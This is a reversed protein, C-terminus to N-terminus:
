KTVGTIIKNIPIDYFEEYNNRIIEYLSYRQMVRNLLNKIGRKNSIYQLDNDIIMTKMGNCIQEETANPNTLILEYYAKKILGVINLEEFKNFDITKINQKFMKSKFKGILTERKNKLANKHINNIIQDISNNDLYSFNEVLTEWDLKQNKYKYTCNNNIFNEIFYTNNCIYSEFLLNNEGYIENIVVDVGRFFRVGQLYHREPENSIKTALYDTLGENVYNLCRDYTTNNVHSLGNLVRKEKIFSSSLNHLIEHIITHPTGNPGIYMKNNRNFGELYIDENKHGYEEMFEQPNNMITVNTLQNDIVRTDYYNILFSKQMLNFAQNKKM